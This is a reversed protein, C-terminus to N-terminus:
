RAGRVGRLSGDAARRAGDSDGHDLDPSDKKGLTEGGRRWGGRAPVRADPFVGGGRGASSRTLDESFIAAVGLFGLVTGVLARRSSMEQPLALRAFLAVFLPFTAFLIAALGSPIRQECWYVVGYSVCFSLVGNVIWLVRETRSTGYRVGYLRGLLFLLASAIGFRLAVGTFPPIGQLGIRIAAWTTGWILSLLLLTSLM